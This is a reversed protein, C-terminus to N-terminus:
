LRGMERAYDLPMGERLARGIGALRTIRDETNEEYQDPLAKVGDLALNLTRLRAASPTFWMGETGRRIDLKAARTSAISFLSPHEQGALPLASMKRLFDEMRNWITDRLYRQEELSPPSSEPNYSNGAGWPVSMRLMQLRSYAIVTTPSFFLMADLPIIPNEWASKRVGRLLDTESGAKPDLFTRHRTMYRNSQGPLNLNLWQELHRNGGFATDRVLASLQGHTISM